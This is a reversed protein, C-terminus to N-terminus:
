RERKKSFNMSIGDAMEPHKYVNKVIQYGKGTAGGHDVWTEEHHPLQVLSPMQHYSHNWWCYQISVMCVLGYWGYLNLVIWKYKGNTYWGYKPAHMQMFWWHKVQLKVVYFWKPFHHGKWNRGSEVGLKQKRYVPRVCRPVVGRRCLVAPFTLPVRTTPAFARRAYFATRTELQERLDPRGTLNEAANWIDFHETWKSGLSGFCGLTKNGM